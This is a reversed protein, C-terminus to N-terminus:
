PVELGPVLPRGGGTRCLVPILLSALLVLGAASEHSRWALSLLVAEVLGACWPSLVRPRPGHIRGVWPPCLAPQVRM